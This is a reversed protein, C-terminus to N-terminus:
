KLKCSFFIDPDGSDLEESYESKIWGLKVLLSTMADNSANTSTWCEATASNEKFYSILSTAIGQLRYEPHVVLLDLFDMGRFSQPTFITFAVILTDSLLVHCKLGQIAWAIQDSRDLRSGVVKQDIDRIASFDSTNAIRIINQM